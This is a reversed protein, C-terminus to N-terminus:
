QHKTSTKILCEGYLFCLSKTIIDYCGVIKRRVRAMFICVFVVIDTCGILFGNQFKCLFKFHITNNSIGRVRSCRRSCVYALLHPQWCRRILRHFNEGVFVKESLEKLLVSEITWFCHAECCIFICKLM